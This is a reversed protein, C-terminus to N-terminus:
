RVGPPIHIAEGGLDVNLIGDISRKPFLPHGDPMLLVKGQVNLSVRLFCSHVSRDGGNNTAANGSKVVGKLSRM